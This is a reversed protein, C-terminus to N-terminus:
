QIMSAGTGPVEFGRLYRDRRSWNLTSRGKLCQGHLNTGVIIDQVGQKGSHMTTGGERCYIMTTGGERGYLMKTGGERGYIM